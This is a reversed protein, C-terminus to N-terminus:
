PNRLAFISKQAVSKFALVIRELVCVCVCVCFALCVSLCVSMCVYLFSLFRVTYNGGDARACGRLQVISIEDGIIGYHIFYNCDSDLGEEAVSTALLINKDGTKFEKIIAEKECQTTGASNYVLILTLPHHVLQQTLSSTM